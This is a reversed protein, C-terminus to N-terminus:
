AAGFRVTTDERQNAVDELVHAGVLLAVAGSVDGRSHRRSAVIGDSSARVELGKVHEALLESGDHSMDDERVRSLLSGTATALDKMTLTRVEVGDTVLAKTVQRTPGGDDAAIAKPRWSDRLDRVAPALWATGPGAMLVQSHPVGEVMWSAMLTSSLQDHAVDYSLVLERTPPAPPAADALRAWAAEPILNAQTGTRRNMYARTFESASVSLRSSLIDDPDMRKDNITFGVAPHYSAVQDRTLDSADVGADAGWYFVAVRDQGALGKDLWDHFFESEATGMTSVIWLQRDQITQQAPDIAGMLLEGEPATHAFSEDLFVTPPTYGHLSDATPAFCQFAAGGPFTVAESGAAVRVDIREKFADAVRLQKVLDKWRARGDKGTQATYFVDRGCVVCRTVGVARILTTKGSQRPVCVIVVRYHYSGDALREGAVDATYQQWPILPTGLQRAIVGTQGGETRLLPNRRTAALPGAGPLTWDERGLLQTSSGLSLTSHTTM